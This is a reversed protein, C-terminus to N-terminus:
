TFVFRQLQFCYCVYYQLQLIKKWEKGTKRRNKNTNQMNTCLKCISGMCVHKEERLRTGEWPDFVHLHCPLGLNDGSTLLHRFPQEDWKDGHTEPHVHLRVSQVPSIAGAAGHSLSSLNLFSSPYSSYNYNTCFHLTFAAHQIVVLLQHFQTTLAFFFYLVLVQFIKFSLYFTCFAYLKFYNSVLFHLM